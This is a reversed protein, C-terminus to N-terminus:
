SANALRGLLRKAVAVAKNGGPLREVLAKGRALLVWWTPRQGGSSARGGFLSQGAAKQGRPSAAQGEARSLAQGLREVESQLRDREIAARRMQFQQANSSLVLTNWLDLEDRNTLRGLDGSGLRYADIQRPRDVVLGLALLSKPEFGGNNSELPGIALLEAVQVSRNALQGAIMGPALEAKTVELAIICWSGPTMDAVTLDALDVLWLSAAQDGHASPGDVAGAVTALWPPCNPGIAITAGSAVLGSVTEKLLRM